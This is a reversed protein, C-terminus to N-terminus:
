GVRRQSSSECGCYVPHGLADRVDRRSPRPLTARTLRGDHGLNRERASGTFVFLHHAGVCHCLHASSILRRITARHAWARFSLGTECFGLVLRAEGLGSPSKNRGWGATATTVPGGVHGLVSGNRIPDRLRAVWCSLFVFSLRRSQGSSCHDHTSHPFAVSYRLGLAVYKTSRM